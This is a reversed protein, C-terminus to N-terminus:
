QPLVRISLEPILQKVLVIEKYPNKGNFDTELVKIRDISAPSETDSSDLPVWHKGNKIETWAHFKMEPSTASKNFVFGIAVRAPIKLSRCVAALLAAHEVCDARKNRLIATVTALQNDFEVLELRQVLGTRCANAKDFATSDPGIAANAALLAQSLKRVQPDNCPVFDSEALLAEDSSDEEFFADVESPNPKIRSVSVEVTRADISKLNQSVRNSFLLYPDKIKHNVSYRITSFNKSDMLEEVFGTLPISNRELSQLDTISGIIQAAEPETRFSRIDVSQLYSKFGEGTQDVWMLAQMGVDGVMGTNRVELLEKSGGFMTPTMIYDNAELKGEIIKGLIPDFYKLTRTERPKLPKRIMTQDVAFPGRFDPQWDLDTNQTQGNRTTTLRLKEDRISGQVVQKVGGIELECEMSILEGNDREITLVHLRQEVTKGQLSVRMRSDSEMRLVNNGQSKSVDTTRRIFGVPSNGVYQVEWIERPLATANIWPTTADDTTFTRATTEAVSTPLGDESSTGADTAKSVNDADPAGENAGSLKPLEAKALTESDAGLEKLVRETEQIEQEPTRPNCGTLCALVLFGLLHLRSFLNLSM